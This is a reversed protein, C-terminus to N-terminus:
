RIKNVRRAEVGCVIGEIADVDTMQTFVAIRYWKYSHSKLSRLRMWNDRDNSVFVAIKCNSSASKRILRIWHLMKMAFPNDFSIERTLLLGKRITTSNNTEKYEYLSGAIQMISYPYGVVVSNPAGGEMQSWEGSVLSMVYHVGSLRSSYVHILKNVSDYMMKCGDLVSVFSVNDDPIISDYEKLIGGLPFNERAGFMQSSIDEIGRSSMMKLGSDTAFIISSDTLLPATNGKIIDRSYPQKNTIKGEGDIALAYMGESTFCMVPHQGFQGQSLATTNPAIAMIKGNGIYEASNIDLTLPNSVETQIIKNYHVVVDDTIPEYGLMKRTDSDYSQSDIINGNADTEISITDRFLVENFNDFWYAGDLTPHEKLNITVRMLDHVDEYQNRMNISVGKRYRYITVKKALGYPYYFWRIGNIGVNVEDMDIPRYQKRVISDSTYEVIAGYHVNMYYNQNEDQYLTETRDSADTINLHTWVKESYLNSSMLGTNYGKYKVERLNALLLRSNYAIMVDPMYKHLTITNDTIRERGLLGDLTGSELTIPVFSLANYNKVLDDISLSKIVYFNSSNKVNDEIKNKALTPLKVCIYDGHLAGNRDILEAMRGWISVKRSYTSGDVASITYDRDRSEGYEVHEIGFPMPKNEDFVADTDYTYIPASVAIVIEKIIDKYLLLSRVADEDSIIRYELSSIFANCDFFTSNQPKSVADNINNAIIFPVRGTNPQMLVPASPYIYRGDNTKYAYRVFFPFMFKDKDVSQTKIFKNINGEITTFNDLTREIGYRSTNDSIYIDCNLTIGKTTPQSVHGSFRDGYVIRLKAAQKDLIKELTWKDQERHMDTAYIAVDNEDYLWVHWEETVKKNGTSLVIKFWRNAELPKRFEYDCAYSHRDAGLFGSGIVSGYVPDDDNKAGVFLIKDDARVYDQTNSQATITINRDSVVSALESQLRFQLDLLPLDQRTYNGDKFICNHIGDITNVCLINGVSTVQKYTSDTIYPIVPTQEELATNYATMAAERDSLYNALNDQMQALSARLESERDHNDVRYYYQYYEDVLMVIDYFDKSTKAFAEATGGFYLAGTTPSYDEYATGVAISDDESYNSLIDSILLAKNNSNKEVDWYTKSNGNADFPGAIVEGVLSTYTDGMETTYEKEKVQIYLYAKQNTDYTLNDAHADVNTESTKPGGCTGIYRGKSTKIWRWASFETSYPNIDKPENKLGGQIVGEYDNLLKRYKENPSLESWKDEETPQEINNDSDYQRIYPLFIEDVREEFEDMKDQDASLTSLSISALQSQISSIEDKTAKINVDIQSVYQNYLEDKINDPVDKSIDADGSRMYCLRGQGDTLIYNDGESTKHIYVLTYGDPITIGPVQTMTPANVLEGNKAILNVCETLEGVDSGTPTRRIGKNLVITKQEAM